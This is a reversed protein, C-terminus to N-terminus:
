HAPGASESALGPGGIAALNPKGLLAMDLDAQALWFDRLAGISANVTSVQSRADALLEFVGILMGNYRLLNEESIRQANPVVHDRYHRAIDYAARQGHYAERVESRADVAVRAAQHVAQMYLAQAQASRSGSWDFLPLEVNLEWGTQVPAENSSNRMAGVELLNIWRTIRSLGLNKATAEAMWRAAQVDLRQALATQEIQPQDTPEAPLDPLREPLTYLLQEGWLGLLRNLRERSAVQAQQARALNLGAEAAFSQERARRLANWNGVEAMRRALEAGAEAAEKVQGMYRLNQEAALANYYARKVDAAHSLVDV